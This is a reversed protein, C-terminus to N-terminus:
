SPEGWVYVLTGDEVKTPLMMLRANAAVPGDIRRGDAMNFRAGHWPCVFAGEKCELPGGLHLCVNAAARVHDGSRWVQVERGFFPFVRADGEPPLDGIECIMHKM